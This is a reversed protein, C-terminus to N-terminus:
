WLQGFSRSLDGKRVHLGITPYGEDHRNLRTRCSSVLANVGGRDLCILERSEAYLITYGVPQGTPLEPTPGRRLVVHPQSIVSFFSSSLQQPTLLLSVVRAVHAGM